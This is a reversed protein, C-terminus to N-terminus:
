LALNRKTIQQHQEVHHITFYIMERVTLKGLLPHPLLITDLEEESYTNIKSALNNIIDSLSKLLKQKRNADVPKPIFRGSAKGGNELTNLYKKVLEDYSKSSRNAKGFILKIAWKPVSLGQNVAGASICIHELQQGATWKDKPAYMFDKDTLASLYDIFLTHNKILQDKLEQGKM